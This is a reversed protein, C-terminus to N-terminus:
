SRQIVSILDVGVQMSWEVLRDERKPAKEKTDLATSPRRCMTNVLHRQTEVMGSLAQSRKEDGLHGQSKDGGEGSYEKVSPVHNRMKM